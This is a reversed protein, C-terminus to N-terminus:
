DEISGRIVAVLSYRLLFSEGVGLEVFPNRAM